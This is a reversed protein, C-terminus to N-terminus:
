MSRREFIGGDKPSPQHADTLATRAPVATPVRNVAGSASIESRVAVL